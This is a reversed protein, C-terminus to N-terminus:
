ALNILESFATPGHSYNKESNPSVEELIVHKFDLLEHLKAQIKHSAQFREICIFISKYIHINNKLSKLGLVHEKTKLNFPSFVLNEKKLCIWVFKM